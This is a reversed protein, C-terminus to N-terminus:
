PPHFTPKGLDLHTKERIGTVEAGTDLKLLTEKDSIQIHTYWATEQPDSTMNDLFAMSTLDSSEVAAPDQLLV